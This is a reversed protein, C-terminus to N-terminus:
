SGCEQVALPMDPDSQFWALRGSIACTEPARYSLSAAPPWITAGAILRMQLRALIQGSAVLVAGNLAMDAPIEFLRTCGPTSAGTGRIEWTSRAAVMELMQLDACHASRVQLLVDGSGSQLLQDMRTARAPQEEIEDALGPDAPDLKVLVVFIMFLAVAAGFVCTLADAFSLLFTNDEGEM